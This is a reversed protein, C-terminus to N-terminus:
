PQAVTVTAANPKGVYEWHWPEYYYPRFGFKDANRVLWKYVRTQTQITRNLDRTEVPEGGVYIDLARGTFHPSNIALGASGAKPDAQRLKEQYERSRFSSIIKLYKEEPALQGDKTVALGLSPDAIAAAVMRRYAAYTEREVQRLEDPRTPDYFDSIPATLLQDPQAYVKNKIRADQWTSIMRYLTETDLVGSPNIGQATQWRALTAAFENTSADRETGLLRNILPTYLYWGHQQKGGFLWNLQYRFMVNQTAAVNAPAGNSMEAPATARRERVAVTPKAGAKIETQERTSQAFGRGTSAAFAAVVFFIAIILFLVLAKDRHQKM